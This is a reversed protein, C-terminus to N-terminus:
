MNRFSGSDTEKDTFLCASPGQAVPSLQSFTHWTRPGTRLMYSSVRTAMGPSFGQARDGGEPGEGESKPWSGGRALAVWSVSECMFERGLFGARVGVVQDRGSRPKDWSGPPPSLPIQASPSNRNWTLRALPWSGPISRRCHHWM